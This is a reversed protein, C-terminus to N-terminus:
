EKKVDKKMESRLTHILPLSGPALRRGGPPTDSTTEIDKRIIRKGRMNHGKQSGISFPAAQSKTATKFEDESASDGSMLSVSDVAIVDGNGQEAENNSGEQGSSVDSECEGDRLRKKRMCYQCLFPTTSQACLEHLMM